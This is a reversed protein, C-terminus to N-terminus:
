RQTAKNLNVLEFLKDTDLKFGFNFRFGSKREIETANSYTVSLPLAFGKFVPFNMLFQFSGLDAKRNIVGKNEYMRSYRGTFSYTIPSFDEIENWPSAIKGEFSAAFSADRVKQQNMLPNPKHYFSVGGNLLLTLPKLVTGYRQYLFKLESYNGLVDRHNVYAITAQQGKYFQDLHKRAEDFSTKKQVELLYDLAASLEIKQEVTVIGGTRVPTVVESKLFNLIAKELMEVQVAEAASTYAGTEVLEKLGALLNRRSTKQFDATSKKSNVVSAVKGEANLLGQVEPAIDRDFIKQFDPSRASRDFLSYRVSYERLQSRTANALLADQKTVNFSASVGIKNFIGAQEYATQYDKAGFTFLAGPTTSLTLVSDNVGREILGNDVAFGLLRAFGPKDIQTASTTSSASTGIQKDTRATEFAYSIPKLNGLSLKAADDGQVAQAVAFVYFNAYESAVFDALDDINNQAIRARYGQAMKKVADAIVPVAEEFENTDTKLKPPPQEAKAPEAKAPEPKAPEVKAPEPKSSLMVSIVKDDVGAIKLAILSKTKTDFNCKTSQIKQIILETGLKARTMDIIDANTLTEDQGFLPTSLVILVALTLLIKIKFNM